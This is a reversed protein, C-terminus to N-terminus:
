KEQFQSLDFREDIDPLTINNEKLVHDLQTLRALEDQFKPRIKSFKRKYLDKTHPKKANAIHQTYRTAEMALKSVINETAIYTAILADADAQPVPENKYWYRLIKKWLSKVFALM